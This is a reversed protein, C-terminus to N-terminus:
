QRCPTARRTGVGTWVCVDNRPLPIEMARIGRGGCPHRRYVHLNVNMSSFFCLMVMVIIILLNRKLKKTQMGTKKVIHRRDEKDWRRPIRARVFGFSDRLQFLGESVNSSIIKLPSWFRSVCIACCSM